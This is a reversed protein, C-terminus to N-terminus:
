GPVPRVGDLLGRLVTRAGAASSNARLFAISSTLLIWILTLKERRSWADGRIMYLTNRVHFYFRGGSDSLATHATATKHCVTSSPVLYGAGERLIRATFEIDDSWIFFHAPPLGFRDVAERSVLLSVFTMARVPLLSREAARAVLAPRRRELGPINMPHLTGDTWVTRSCLLLPRPLGALAPPAELLRELADPEAITDDDMMWTWDPANDQAARLGAHFGGSSGRNVALALLEVDPHEARVMDGTGDSSANDVVLVRQPPRTQAALAALCQQLLDRRNHTVVVACVKPAM